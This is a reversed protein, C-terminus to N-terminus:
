SPVRLGALAAFPSHPDAAPRRRPRQRPRRAYLVAGGETAEGRYGLGALVAAVAASSLGSARTLAPAAAFRGTRGLARARRAIREVIDARVARAGCVVFGVAAYYAAPVGPAVAIATRGAPPPEPAPLARATVAWLLGRAAMPRPKLLAPAYAVATGVTVGAAALARRDAAAIRVGGDLPLVGLAEGLRFVLGRAPGGLSAERLSPLPGAAAGVFADRWAALRRELAATEAASLLENVLVVLRPALPSEGAVLRAVPEGRWRVRGDASATFAADDADALATARAALEHRLARRAANRIAKGERAAEAGDAVFALGSLRGIFQGEVTVAGDGAVSTALPGGRRLRHVLVATRRDIFSQSLREHLADSLRDEIARTRGQWHAADALWRGRQSVYTWTRIHAIRTALTDIDGDTRDLRDVRRALWDEPLCGDGRRLHRFIDALLRVHADAMIKRYDPIQCVEWLLRVDDPGSVLAAIAPDAALAALAAEDDAEPVRTLAPSPPPAALSARLAALSTFRLAANRWAFARLPPFRHAEVAAVLEADLAGWDSSAAFTGDNTHRGARGAIQAVEAATLPRETRGDFKRLGAFVVHNVDMNLGMGIADTAVMYDVEGAQYLAVQANRTRPSLAGLVVAAGGRRRRLYEATAYVEAASFAVVATRPPLRALNRTGAYALRSLRPRTIVAAEPVLRRILPRATEAGLFMTEERGRAHLLRHTFVHGRVPDAALQIEDIALFAVSRDLPMAEVTCAFYRPNAPVIKEEGTILAAAGAGAGAVLREYVERALLRLPLGIMGSSHGLLREVALHTKGTNTPGLVATLRGGDRM